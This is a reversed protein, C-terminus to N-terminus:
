GSPGDVVPGPGAARILLEHLRGLEDPSLQQLSEAAARDVREIGLALIRDGAPTRRYAIRRRDTQDSARDVWGAAELSKLINSVTPPPSGISRAIDGPHPLAELIALIALAKPHIGLDQLGEAAASFLRHQIQWTLRVIEWGSLEAM